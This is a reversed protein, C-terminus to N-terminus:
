LEKEWAQDAISQYTKWDGNLWRQRGKEAYFVHLQDGFFEWVKGNTTILGEGLSLANACYGNYRPVYKEPNAAFKDASSQSAFQWRVDQWVVSFAEKGKSVLSTDDLNEQYYSVTDHGDLAIDDWYSTSVPESAIVQQALLVFVIFVQFVLNIQTKM